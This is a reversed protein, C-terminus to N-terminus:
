PRDGKQSELNLLPLLSRTQEDIIIKSRISPM